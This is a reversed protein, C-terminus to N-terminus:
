INFFLLIHLGQKTTQSRQMARLPMDQTPFLMESETCSIKLNPHSFSGKLHPNSLYMKSIELLAHVQLLKLPKKRKM